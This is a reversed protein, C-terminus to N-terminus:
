LESACSPPPRGPARGGSAISFRAFYYIARNKNYM